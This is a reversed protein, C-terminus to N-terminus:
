GNDNWSTICAVSPDLEYLAATQAFLLLFDPAYLMDDEVVIAYPANPNADFLHSLTFRYHQAIRAAGDRVPSDPRQVLRVGM